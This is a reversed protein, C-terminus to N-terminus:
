WGGAGPISATKRDSRRHRTWGSRAMPCEIFSSAPHLRESSHSAFGRRLRLIRHPVGRCTHVRYVSTASPFRALVGASAVAPGRSKQIGKAIQVLQSQQGLEAHLHVHVVGERRAVVAQEIFLGVLRAGVVPRREDPVLEHARRHEFGACRGRWVEMEVRLAHSIM